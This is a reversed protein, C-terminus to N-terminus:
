KMLVCYFDNLALFKIFERIMVDRSNRRERSKRFVSLVSIENKRHFRIGIREARAHYM